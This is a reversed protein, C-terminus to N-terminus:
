EETLAVYESKKIKTLGPYDPPEDKTYPIAVILPGDQKAMGASPRSIRGNAWAFDNPIGLTKLCFLSFSAMGQCLKRAENIQGVLRRGEKTNRKPYAFVHAEDGDDVRMYKPVERKSKYAFGLLGDPAGVPAGAGHSKALDVWATFFVKHHKEWAKDMESTTEASAKYYQFKIGSDDM